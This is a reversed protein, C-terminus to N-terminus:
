TRSWIHKETEADILQALVRVNNESHQVSGELLADVQLKEAIERIGANSDRFAFSSTRAVVDLDPSLTLMHIIRDVLGDAFPGQSGTTSMDAFPLAAVARGTSAALEPGSGPTHERGSWPQLWFVAVLAVLVLALLGLRMPQRGVARLPEPQAANAAAVEIQAAAQEDDLPKWAGSEFLYGRRPVAKLVRHPRHDDGIAKRLASVAVNVSDDTAAELHGWIGEILDDRSLVRGDHEVFYNLLTLLRPALQAVEGRKGLV